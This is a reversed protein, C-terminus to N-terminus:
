GPGSAAPLVDLNITSTRPSGADWSVTFSWCGPTPVNVLSPMQNGNTVQGEVTVVPESRGYPRGEIHLDAPVQKTAWLVKDASGDPRHGKAVLQGGWVYALAQAPDGLAWPVPWPQGRQMTFGGQAWAPPPAAKVVSTGMCGWSVAVPRNSPGSSSHPSTAGGTCCALMLPLLVWGLPWWM